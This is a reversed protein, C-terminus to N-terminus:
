TLGACMTPANEMWGLQSAELRDGDRAGDGFGNRGRSAPPNNITVGLGRWLAGVVVGARRPVHVDNPPLPVLM